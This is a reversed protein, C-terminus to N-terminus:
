EKISVFDKFFNSKFMMIFKDEKEKKKKGDFPPLLSKILM